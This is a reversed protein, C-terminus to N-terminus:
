RPPWRKVQSEPRNMVSIHLRVTTSPKVRLLWCKSARLRTNMVTMVRPMRRSMSPMGIARRGTQSTNPVDVTSYLTETSGTRRQDNKQAMAM